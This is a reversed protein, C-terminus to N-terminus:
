AVEVHAMGGPVVRPKGPELSVDGVEYRIETHLAQGIFCHERAARATLVYERSRQPEGGVITPSVTIRSFREREGPYDTVVGSVRVEVGEAPLGDRALLHVLTGSYCSAVASILLEEPSTGVGRGGMNAPASFTVTQAGTTLVGGGARGTGKWAVLSTYTLDRM